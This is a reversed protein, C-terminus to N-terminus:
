KIVSGGTVRSKNNAYNIVYEAIIKGDLTLYLPQNKSEDTKDTKGSKSESTTQSTKVGGSVAAPAASSEAEVTTKIVAAADANELLKSVAAYIDSSRDNLEKTFADVYDDANSVAASASDISDGVSDFIGDFYDTIDSIVTEKSTDLGDVFGAASELGIGKIEEPLGGFLERVDSVFSDNVAQLEGSYLEQSRDDILKSVENYTDNIENFEKDGMALLNKSYVLGDAMDMNMIENLLDTNLNRDKLKQISKTFEDVQKKYEKINSISYIIKDDTEEKQFIDLGSKLRSAYSEQQKLIDNYKSQYTKALENLSSKLASISEKQSKTLQKLAAKDAEEQEKLATENQKDRYSNVESYYKNYASLGKTHHSKLLEELKNYYEEETIEGYVLQMNLDEYATKFEDSIKNEIESITSVTESVAEVTNKTSKAVEEAAKEAAKGQQEYYRAMADSGTTETLNDQAQEVKGKGEDYCAAIADTTEKINDTVIDAGDRMNNIFDTTDVNNVDGGYLEGNTFINDLWVQVQKQAGDLADALNNMTTNAAASWDYHVLSDAISDCIEVPVYLLDPISAILSAALAGIIEIAAGLLDGAHDTLGTALDTIVQVAVPVLAPLNNVIGDALGNILQTAADMLLRWNETLTDAITTVANVASPILQPLADNIGSIFEIMLQAAADLLLPLNDILTNAITVVANVVAPIMDPLMSLLTNLMQSFLDIVADLLTPLIGAMAGLLADVATPLAAVINQIVPTINTVVNNFSEAVNQCLQEIDADADGLGTVLNSIAGKLTDISGTITHEAEAATTGAIDMSEQIVHIASVVDAYSDIDYEIGSIAEADALLREMEEKTGGYGLKLNDLMTYNQKAFGQYANQISEIDTGMKNANDAMDTVAMDAYEAAKQTDGGLSSILSASFGTVTKMYENASMGATKYANAAYQQVTESSNKFLTDVGGVLQEYDAYSSVIEKGLKVAAAGAAAISAAMAAGTAKAASTLGKFEGKLQDSDGTIKVRVEGDEAM